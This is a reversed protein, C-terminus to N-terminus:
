MPPWKSHRNLSKSRPNELVQASQLGSQALQPYLLVHLADLDGRAEIGRRGELAFDEFGPISRDIGTLERRMEAVLDQATIDLGHASLLDQWGDSALRALASRVDDILAM